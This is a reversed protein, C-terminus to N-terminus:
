NYQSTFTSFFLIELGATFLVTQVMEIAFGANASNAVFVESDIKFKALKPYYDNWFTMRRPNFATGM